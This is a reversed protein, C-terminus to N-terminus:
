GQQQRDPQRGGGQGQDVGDHRLALHEVSLQALDDQARGHHHVHQAHHRQHDDKLPNRPSRKEGKHYKHHPQDVKGPDAHPKEFAVVVVVHLKLAAEDQHHHKREDQHGPGDVDVQGDDGEDGAEHERVNDLLILLQFGVQLGYDKAEHRREKKKLAPSEM